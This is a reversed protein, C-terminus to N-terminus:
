NEIAPLSRIQEGNEDTTVTGNDQIVRPAAGVQIPIATVTSITGGDTEISASVNLFLRGERLPILRVQQLSPEDNNSPAITIQAPQAETFQMATSDNLRYEVAIVQSGLLSTIEIDVGVPQGVVPIGIIRYAISVPSQPKATTAVTSSQGAEEAGAASEEVAGNGCATAFAITTLLILIRNM